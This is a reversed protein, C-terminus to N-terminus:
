SVVGHFKHCNPEKSDFIRFIVVVACYKLECKPKALIGNPIALERIWLRGCATERCPFM